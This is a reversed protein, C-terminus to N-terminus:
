AVPSSRACCHLSTISPPVTTPDPRISPQGGRGGEGGTMCGGKRGERTKLSGRGSGKVRKQHRTLAGLHVKQGLPVLSHLSHRAKCLLVAPLHTLTPSAPAKLDVAKFRAGKTNAAWRIVESGPLSAFATQVVVGRLHGRRVTTNSNRHRRWCSPMNNKQAHPRSHASHTPSPQQM